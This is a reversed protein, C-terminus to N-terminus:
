TGGMLTINTLCLIVLILCLRAISEGQDRSLPLFLMKMRRGVLLFAVYHGKVNDKDTM